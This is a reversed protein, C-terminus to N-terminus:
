YQSGQEGSFDSRSIVMIMTGFVIMLLKVVFGFLRGIDDLWVLFSFKIGVVSLIVAMMGTALIVFGIFTWIARRNM